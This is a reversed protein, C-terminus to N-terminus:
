DSEKHIMDALQMVKVAHELNTDPKKDEKLCQIFHRAEDLFGYTKRFEESAALKSGKIIEPERNNDKYIRVIEPPEVYAAIGRGHMEFKEVRAGSVYCASLVGRAGDKFKFLANFSNEYDSDFKTSMSRVSEVEGGMWCLTDLSHIVDVLLWSNTGYYPTDGLHYKHFEALCQTVPGKEEVKKKAERMVASFRRNFGVMSKCSNEKAVRAMEKTEDLSIGPPKELFIHLGKFLSYIVVPKVLKPPLVTYVADLNAEELMKKYDTFTEKIKFKQAAKKLRESDIDCLAALEVDELEVLSPLHVRSCLNGTGIVGIKIREM